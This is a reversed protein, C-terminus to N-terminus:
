EQSQNRITDVIKGIEQCGRQAAKIVTNPAAGSERIHVRGEEQEKKVQALLGCRGEEACRNGYVTCQSFDVEGEKKTM